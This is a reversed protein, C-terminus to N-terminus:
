FFNLYQYRYQPLLEGEAQSEHQERTRKLDQDLEDLISPDDWAEENPDRVSFYLQERHQVLVQQRSEVGRVDAYLELVCGNTFYLRYTHNAESGEEDVIAEVQSVTLGVAEEITIGDVGFWDLNDPYRLEVVFERTDQVVGFVMELHQGAHQVSTRSLTKGVLWNLDVM